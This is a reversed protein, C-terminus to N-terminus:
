REGRPINGFQAFLHPISVLIRAPCSCLLHRIAGFGEVARSFDPSFHHGVSLL